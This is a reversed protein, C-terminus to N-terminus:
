RGHRGSCRRGSFGLLLASEAHQALLVLITSRVLACRRRVLLGAFKREAPGLRHGNRRGLVRALSPTASSNCCGFARPSGCSSWTGSITGTSSLNWNSCNGCSLFTFDSGFLADFADSVTLREDRTLGAYKLRQSHRMNLWQALLLVAVPGAALAPPRRLAVYVGVGAALAALEVITERHAVGLRMGVLEAKIEVRAEEASVPVDGEWVGSAVAEERTARLRGLAQVARARARSALRHPLFLVDGASQVRSERLVPWVRVHELGLSRAESTVMDEDARDLLQDSTFLFRGALTAGGETTSLVWAACTSSALVGYAVLDINREAARVWRWM